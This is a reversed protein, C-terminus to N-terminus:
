TQDLDFKPKKSSSKMPEIFHTRFDANFKVVEAAAGDCLEAARMLRNSVRWAKIRVDVGFLLPHGELTKLAARADEAAGQFEDRMMRAASRGESSYEAIDKPSTFEIASLTGFNRRKSM